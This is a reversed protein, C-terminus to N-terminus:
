QGRLYHDSLGNYAKDFAAVAKADNKHQMLVPIARELSQKENDALANYRAKEVYKDVPNAKAFAAAAGTTDGRAGPRRAYDMVFQAYDRKREAAAELSALLTRRGMPTQMLGPNAEISSQIVQQAERAGLTRAQAQGMYTNLKNINEAAGIADPSFMNVQDGFIGNVIGNAAKAYEFRKQAFPGTKLWAGGETDVKQFENRLTKIQGLQVASDEMSRGADQLDKQSTFRIRPDLAGTKWGIRGPAFDGQQVPGPGSYGYGRQSVPLKAEEEAQQVAPPPPRQTPPPPAPQSALPAQAAAAPTVVGGGPAPAAPTGTQPAATIPPQTLPTPAAPAAAAAPPPAYPTRAAAGGGYPQGSRLYFSDRPDKNNIALPEGTDPDFGITYKGQNYKLREMNARETEAPTMMTYSDRHKDAELALQQARQNLAEEQQAESRQKELMQVGQLGGKGIAVGPFPSGSAMAGLGATMLATWPSRAFQTSTDQTAGPYPRTFTRGQLDAQNKAATETASPLLPLDDSATTRTVPESGKRVTLKNPSIPQGTDPDVAGQSAAVDQYGARDSIARPAGQDPQRYPEATSGPGTSPVATGEARGGLPGTTPYDGLRYGGNQLLKYGAQYPNETVQTPDYAQGKGQRLWELGRDRPTTYGHAAMAERLGPVVGGEQPLSGFAYDWRSMTPDDDSPGGAQLHRPYPTRGGSEMLFLPALKAASGAISALSSLPDSGQSGQQQMSMPTIQPANLAQQASIAHQIGGSPVAPDSSEWNIQSPKSALKRTFDKASPQQDSYYGSDGYETDADTPYSADGGGDAFFRGGRAALPNGGVSVPGSTPLYSGGFNSTSGGSPDIFNSGTNSLAGYAGVGAAGLGAIQGFPSPQPPTYTGYGFQNTNAGMAGALGGTINALYQATQFPYAQQQLQNQYQANLQAQNLQQQYAGSGYLAGTAGLMSQLNAGGLQGMGYAAGQELQQQQQAASLASGYLGALTQGTALGQQRALEGQAVGIRDAGVGGATQTAQGTLQNMQQGQQEALNGLM